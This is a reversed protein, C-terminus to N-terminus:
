KQTFSSMQEFNWFFSEIIVVDESPFFDSMEIIVAETSRNGRQHDWIRARQLNRWSKRMMMQKFLVWEDFDRWGEEFYGVKLSEEVKGESDLVKKGQWDWRCGIKNDEEKM